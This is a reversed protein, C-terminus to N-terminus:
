APPQQSRRNRRHLSDNLFLLASASLVGIIGALGFRHWLILHDLEMTGAVYQGTTQPVFKMYPIAWFLPSNGGFAFLPLLFAYQIVVAFPIACWRPGAVALVGLVSVLGVGAVRLILVQSRLQSMSAIEVQQRWAFVLAAVALASVVLAAINGIRKM